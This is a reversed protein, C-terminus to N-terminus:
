VVAGRDAGGLARERAEFRVAVGSADFGVEAGELFALFGDAGGGPARQFRLVELKISGAKFQLLDYM